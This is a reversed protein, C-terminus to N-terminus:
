HARQRARAALPTPTGKPAGLESTTTGDQMEVPEVPVTPPTLEVMKAGRMQITSGDPMVYAAVEPNWKPIAFDIAKKVVGRIRGEEINVFLPTKLKFVYGGQQIAMMYTKNNVTLAKRFGLTEQGQLEHPRHALVFSMLRLAIHNHLRHCGHSHRRMISMYDVSGHTRIGQDRGLVISGDARKFFERHYAAVLGYASAYSPGTEHYNVLYEPESPKTRHPFKVLLDEAPTSDPPLWVPAAVIEEWARPGAPSEKYKWMSVGDIVESRWGGITTGYRALAIKKGGYLVSVTVNPRRTVPQPLEQGKDGFPFDYWVDGRDYDLTLQMEGAYYEPLPPLKLAVYRHGDKPLDGLSELFALSSEPTQLGFADIVTDRLAGVLNPVPLERGDAARYLRPQGNALTSTSGDEIVGAAHVARETLVRLLGERDNELPRNLLPLLTDKGIFGWSYVRNRREFEALGEHTAWDLMGPLVKGRGKLYGECKLRQQTALTAKRIPVDALYRSLALADRKSLATADLEEPTSVKAASMLATVRAQQSTFEQARKRAVINSTYTELSDYGQLPTYDLEGVCALKSTAQMRERVVQLTPLIGFLELYKDDKAREGHLDEPFEGRALALYTAKYGSAVPTGDAKAGDALLYPTWAEGLDLVVYERGTAAGDIMRAQKGHEWLPVAQGPPVHPQVASPPEAASPQTPAPTASPAPPQEAPKDKCGAAAVACLAVASLLSFPGPSTVSKGRM